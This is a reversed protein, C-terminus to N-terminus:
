MCCSQEGHQFRFEDPPDADFDFDGLPFDFPFSSFFSDGFFPEDATDPFSREDVLRFEIKLVLMKVVM